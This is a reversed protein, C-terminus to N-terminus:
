KAHSDYFTVIRDMLESDLSDEIAFLGNHGRDEYQVFSFRPDDQYREHFLGFHRDFSVTDDDSSHIIMVEADSAAFGDLCSASAYKGFKALEILRFFPLVMDVGAGAQRRGEEECMEISRNFGAGMVVAQIDPHYALVSGASYAGWSHGFLMTPLGEFDPSEKVFRVAYDLDIVGQPMGGVGVGESEDNGTADYAFVDYGNSAFYDAIDMYNTHGGGGFGHALIVVGKTDNDKYYRYGVLTQGNNSQFTYQQRNLGDFEDVTFMNEPDTTFRPGFNANYIYVSLAFISIIAVLVPVLIALVIKTKKRVKLM